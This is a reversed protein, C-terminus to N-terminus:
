SDHARGERLRWQAETLMGRRVLQRLVRRELRRVLRTTGLEASSLPNVLVTYMGMRNGGLVDTFLQDGIVATERPATGLLKLARRFARRVPKAAYAIGPVGLTEAFARVRRPRANSTICVRFGRAQAEEVWARIPPPVSAQGYEAITNDLDLILGRIGRQTLEGLDVERLSRRCEDPALLRLLPPDEM